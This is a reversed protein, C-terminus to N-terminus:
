PAAGHFLDRAPNVQLPDRNMAVLAGEDLGPATRRQQEQMAQAQIVGGPEGDEVVQRPVERHDRRVQQAVARAGLRAGVVRHAAVGVPHAVQEGDEVDVLDGDDPV